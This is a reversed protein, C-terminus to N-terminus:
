KKIYMTNFNLYNIGRKGKVGMVVFYTFGNIKKTFVLTQEGMGNITGKQVNDFDNLILPIYEFDKDTVGKQGRKSEETDNGHRKFTHDIAHSSITKEAGNVKVTTKSNIEQGKFNSVRGISISQTESSKNAKAYAVLIRIQNSM